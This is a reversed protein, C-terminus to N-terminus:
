RGLVSALSDLLETRRARSGAGRTSEIADLTGHVARLDLSPSEAPTAAVDRIAAFGVGLKGQPLRGSLYAVGVAVEDPSMARLAAALSETKAKRSRTAAVAQSTAAIEALLM